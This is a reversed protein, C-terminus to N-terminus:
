QQSPDDSSRAPPRFIVLVCPFPANHPSGGFKLRKELYRIEAYPLVYTHWWVTDSRVPLLMVVTAGTKASEYSKQVWRRLILGYPPNAYCVEHGWDQALGDVAPTFYRACKATRDSACVDLTFGFELYPL